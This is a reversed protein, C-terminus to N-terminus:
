PMWREWGEQRWYFGLGTWAVKQYMYPCLAWKGLGQWHSETVKMPPSDSNQVIEWIRHVAYALLSALMWFQVVLAYLQFKNVVRRYDM